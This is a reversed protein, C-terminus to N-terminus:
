GVRAVEFFRVGGAEYARVVGTGLLRLAKWGVFVSITRQSGFDSEAWRM